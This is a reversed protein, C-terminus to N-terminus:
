PQVGLQALEAKRKMLESITAPKFGKAAFYQQIQTPNMGKTESTIQWVRFDAARDFKQEAALYAAPDGSSFLPTLLQAKAQQVQAGAKLQSVAENIADPTMHRSPNAASALARLADTGQTGTGLALSIQAASKDILDGATKRDIASQSLGSMQALNNAFDRWETDGGTIAAKARMAIDDLRAQVTAAPQAQAQVNKYSGLMMDQANKAGTVRSTTVQPPIASVIGSVPAGTVANRPGAGMDIATPNGAAVDAKIAAAVRPDAFNSAPGTSTSLPPPVGPAMPLSASDFGPVSKKFVRTMTGDLAQTEVMDFGAKGGAQAESAARVASLGGEIPVTKWTKTNPDFVNITGPLPAGPMQERGGAANPMIGGPRVPTMEVSKTIAQQIIQQGQPSAPDIGQQRLLQVIPPESKWYETIDPMGGLKMLTAQERTFPLGANPRPAMQPASLQQAQPVDTSADGPGRPSQPMAARADNVDAPFMSSTSMAPAVQPASQSAQPTTGAPNGQGLALQLIAQEQRAKALQMAQMQRAMQQQQAQQYVGMANQGAAGLANTFAGRSNLLGLGLAMIAQSKPDNMDGTGTLADLLGM